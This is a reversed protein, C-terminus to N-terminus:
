EATTIQKELDELLETWAKLKAAAAGPDKVHKHNLVLRCSKGSQLLSIGVITNREETRGFGDVNWELIIEGSSIKVFHGYITGRGKFTLKFKGDARFDSEIEDAGTLTFFTNNRFLDFIEESTTSYSKELTIM